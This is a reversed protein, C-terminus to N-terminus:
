DAKGSINKSLFTQVRSKFADTTPCHHRVSEMQQLQLTNLADIMQTIDDESGACWRLRQVAGQADGFAEPTLEATTLVAEMVEACAKRWLLNECAPSALAQIQQKLDMTLFEVRAGTSSVILAPLEALQAQLRTLQHQLARREQEEDHARARQSNITQELQHVQQRWNAEHQEHAQHQTTLTILQANLQAGGALLARNEAQLIAYAQRHHETAQELQARASRSATLEMGREEAIQQAADAQAKFHEVQRHLESNREWLRANDAGMVVLRHELAALQKELDERRYIEAIERQRAQAVKEHLAIRELEWETQQQAIRAQADQELRTMALQLADLVSTPLQHPNELRQADGQRQWHKLRVFCRTRASGVTAYVTEGNPLEGDADLLQEIVADIDADSVSERRGRRQNLDTVNQM